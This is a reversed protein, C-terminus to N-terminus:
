DGKQIDSGELADKSLLYTFITGLVAITITAILRDLGVALASIGPAFGLISAIGAVIGERIGLGGPALSVLQTLITASAFLVCEPLTVNQSFANLALWFRVSMTFIAFIQIAILRYLLARNEKLVYWGQKVREFIKRWGEPLFKTELPVWLFILSCVMIVFGACLIMPFRYHNVGVLYGIGLLGMFGNTAIFCIYLAGTASLYKTYPLRHKKKLYIGKAILGGAFPLQNALTNITALGFGSLVSVPADLSRYLLYNVLGNQMATLLVFIIITLIVGWSINLIQNLREYNRYIFYGFILIALIVILSPLYNKLFGKM